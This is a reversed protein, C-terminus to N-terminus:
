NGIPMKFLLRKGEAGMIAADRREADTLKRGNWRFAFEDCYRHMHKKSIQHFTGYHGRKLLAFFSEATNTTYGGANVYEEARHNVTQHGGFEKAAAPYSPMEDTVITASKDVVSEMVQKIDKAKFSNMPQSHCDGNTEVLVMVPMKSTGYGRKRPPKNPKAHHSHKSSAGVFTEDVQVDKNLLGLMPQKKMALRIRHALHWATKYSGIGLNRQLQLASIGKKSTAMLHIAKVWTALPLHSDEFITGVTVTFQKKCDRCRCLGARVTAGTMRYANVSGCHRCVPQGDPWLLKEVQERAQEETLNMIQQNKQSRAQNKITM